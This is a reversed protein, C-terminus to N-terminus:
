KNKFKWSSLWNRFLELIFKIERWSM